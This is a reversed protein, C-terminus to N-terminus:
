LKCILACAKLLFSIILISNAVSDMRVYDSSEKVFKYREEDQFCESNTIINRYFPLELYGMDKFYKLLFHLNQYEDVYFTDVEYKIVDERHNQTKLIWKGTKKLHVSKGQIKKKTELHVWEYQDKNKLSTVKVGKKSDCIVPVTPYILPSNSNFLKVNDKDTKVIFKQYEDKCVGKSKLEEIDNIILQKISRGDEIEIDRYRLYYLKCEDYRGQLYLSHILNTMVWKQLQFLKFAKIAM